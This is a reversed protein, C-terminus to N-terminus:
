VVVCGCKAGGWGGVWGGVVVCMVWGGVCWERERKAGGREGQVVHMRPLGLRHADSQRWAQQERARLGDDGAAEDKDGIGARGVDLAAEEVAVEGGVGHTLRALRQAEGDGVVRPAVGHVARAGAVLGHPL